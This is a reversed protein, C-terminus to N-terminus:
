ISKFVLKWLDISLSIETEKYLLFVIFIFFITSILSIIIRQIQNKYEFNDIDSFEDYKNWFPLKKYVTIISTIFQMLLLNFLFLSYIDM